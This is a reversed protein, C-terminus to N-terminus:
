GASRTRTTPSVWVPANKDTANLRVAVLRVKVGTPVTLAYWTGGSRTGKLELPKSWQNNAKVRQLGVVFRGKAPIRYRLVGPRTNVRLRHVIRTQVESPRIVPAQGGSAVLSGLLNLAAVPNIFGFGFEDDRGRAGLDNATALIVDAPDIDTGLTRERSIVLAATAATFPTAMSTGPMRVYRGDAYTSYIGKASDFMGSGGPAMVDVQKGVESFSSRTMSRTVAGVGIVGPFAAPYQIPNYLSGGDDVYANGVAAVPVVGKSLAYQIAKQEVSSASGSYSMNLVDAGHDVAWIIGRASDASRVWGSADAVIVPMISVDPALGAGGIGNNATMAIIGAVHTGHGNTDTRGDTGDVLDVGKVFRGALDPHRSVGSDLVAVTVGTGTSSDWATEAQLADLGWQEVRGPDSATATTALGDLRRPVDVDVAVVDPQEQIDAITQEAADASPAVATRVQLQDDDQVAYVVTMEGSDGSKAVLASPNQAVTAAPQAWDAAPTGSDDAAAPAAGLSLAVSIAVIARRM